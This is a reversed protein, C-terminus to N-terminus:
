SRSGPKIPAGQGAKCMPCDEETWSEIEMPLVAVQKVGFTVKGASRDVLVAVGTLEGGAKKVIDIVEQVSGGTTIVDEVVLVRRGPPIEFGRRLQMEGDQRETFIGPVGLQRAVEYAVIIGGMAPGVVLEIKDDQFQETIHRALQETFAPYQLVQACQMYRNSHRGSTLKFHGQLLAGAETFIKTASEIDLM